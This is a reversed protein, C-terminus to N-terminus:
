ISFAHAYIMVPVPFSDGFNPTLSVLAFQGWIKLFHWESNVLVLLSFKMKKRPLPM